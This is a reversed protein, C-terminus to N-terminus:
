NTLRMQVVFRVRFSSHSNLGGIMRNDAKSEFNPSRQSFSRSPSAQSRGFGFAPSSSDSAWPWLDSYRVLWPLWPLWPLRRRMGPHGDEKSSGVRGFRCRRAANRTSPDHDVEKRFIQTFRRWDATLGQTVRFRTACGDVGSVTLQREGRKRLQRFTPTPLLNPSLLVEFFCISGDSQTRAVSNEGGFSVPCNGLRVGM